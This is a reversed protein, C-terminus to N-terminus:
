QELTKMVARIINQYGTCRCLHGALGQKVDEKSYCKGSEVMSTASIVFGPTCYGCQIAGEAIFAEQLKSPLGGKAIGEISVIERGDAWVALYICSNIATGDVLVACAGCEGVECGKKAGTLHLRERLVELLTEGANITMTEKKGNITFSIEKLM